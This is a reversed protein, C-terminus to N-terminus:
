LFTFPEEGSQACVCARRCTPVRSHATRAKQLADLREKRDLAESMSCWWADKTAQLELEPAETLARRKAVHQEHAGCDEGEEVPTRASAAAAEDELTATSHTTPGERQGDRRAM